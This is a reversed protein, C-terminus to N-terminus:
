MGCGCEKMDKGTDYDYVKQCDECQFYTGLLWVDGLQSVPKEPVEPVEDEDTLGSEVEEEPLLDALEDEDFGLLDLDFDAEQLEELELSLLENDWEAWTAAQNVALRFAKVQVDTLDDALVVPVTELNLKRAAKLRLHGDVVSGDSKAIVPVLFGFERINACMRDVAGDNDRPNRAYDILKSTSWEEHNLM